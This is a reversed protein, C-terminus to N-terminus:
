GKRARATNRDSVVANASRALTHSSVAPRTTKGTTPVCAYQSAMLPPWNPGAEASESISTGDRSATSASSKRANSGGASARELVGDDDEAARDGDRQRGAHRGGVREAAQLRRAEAPPPARDEGGVDHRVRDQEDREVLDDDAEAEVVIGDDQQEDIRRHRQRE